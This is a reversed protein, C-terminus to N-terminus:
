FFIGGALRAHQRMYKRLFAIAKVIYDKVSNRSLQMNAAIEEHSLGDVRSLIFAKQQQAPLRRIGEHLIRSLEKFEVSSEGTDIIQNVKRAIYTKYAEEASIRTLKRYTLNRACVNMYAGLNDIDTLKERDKWIQMLVEQAADEAFEASKSIILAVSYIKNWYSRFLLEFAKEDGGSIRLLLEKENHLQDGSLYNANATEKQLSHYFIM